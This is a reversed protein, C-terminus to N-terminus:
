SLSNAFPVLTVSAERLKRMADLFPTVQDSEFPQSAM